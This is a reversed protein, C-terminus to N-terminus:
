ASNVSRACHWRPDQQCRHMPKTLYSGHTHTTHICPQSLRSTLSALAHHLFGYPFPDAGLLLALLRTDLTNTAVGAPRHRSPSQARGCQGVGHVCVTDTGDTHFLKGRLTQGGECAVM